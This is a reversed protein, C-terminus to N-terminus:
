RLNKVKTDKTMQRITFDARLSFAARNQEHRQVEEPHRRGDPPDHERERPQQRCPELPAGLCNLHLVPDPLSSPHLNVSAM